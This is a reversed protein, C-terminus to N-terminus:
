PWTRDRATELDIASRRREAEEYGNVAKAMLMANEVRSARVEVGNADILAHRTRGAVPVVKVKWPRPQAEGPTHPERKPM